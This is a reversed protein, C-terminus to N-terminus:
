RSDRKAQNRKGRASLHAQIPKSRSKALQRSQAASEAKASIYHSEAKATDAKRAGARNGSAHAGDNARAKAAQQAREARLRAAAAKAAARKAAAELKATRGEFRAVVEAFLRAKQATRVNADGTPGGKVGTRARAALTQRQSLDRYKDRLKRSRALHSKLTKAQLSGLTEGLSALLLEYEAATCLARAQNRNLPM